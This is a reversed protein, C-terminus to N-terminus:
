YEKQKRTQKQPAKKYEPLPITALLEIDFILSTNPPIVSGVGEDGYALAPPCLVEIKQGVKM